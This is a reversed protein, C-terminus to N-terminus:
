SMESSRAQGPMPRVESGARAADEASVALAAPEHEAGSVREASKRGASESAFTGTRQTLLLKQPM